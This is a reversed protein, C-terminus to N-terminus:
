KQVAQNMNSLLAKRGTSVSFGGGDCKSVADPTHTEIPTPQFRASRRSKITARDIERHKLPLISVRQGSWKRKPCLFRKLVLDAAVDCIRILSYMRDNTGIQM